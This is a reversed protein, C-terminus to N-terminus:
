FLLKDLASWILFITSECHLTAVSIRFCNFSLILFFFVNRILNRIRIFEVPYKNMVPSYFKM